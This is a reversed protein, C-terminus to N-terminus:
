FGSAPHDPIGPDFGKGPLFRIGSYFGTGPPFGTFSNFETGLFVRYGSSARYWFVAGPNLGIAPYLGRM